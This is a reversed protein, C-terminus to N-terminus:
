RSDTQGNGGAAQHKLHRSKRNATRQQRSSRVAFPLRGARYVAGAVCVLYAVWAMLLAWLGSSGMADKDAVVSPSNEAAPPPMRTRMPRHWAHRRVTMMAAYEPVEYPNCQPVAEEVWPMLSHSTPKDVSQQFVISASLEGPSLKQRQSSKRQSDRQQFTALQARGLQQVGHLDETEKDTLIDDNLSHHIRGLDSRLAAEQACREYRRRSRGTPASSPVIPPGVVCPLQTLCLRRPRFSRAPIQTSSEGLGLQPVSTARLGQMAARIDATQAASM